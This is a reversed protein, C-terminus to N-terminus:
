WKKMVIAIWDEHHKRDILRFGNKEFAERVIKEKEKLIGAAIIRGGPTLVRPLDTLLSLHLEAILNAVILEAKQTVTKLGDGQEVQIQETLRNIAIHKQTEAIAQPDLDIAFIQKAGLKAAAISLIGSGCGVDIVRDGSKLHKELFQLCQVTTPHHGTGFALGPDLEIVLKHELLASEVKQGMPKVLLRDSVAIPHLHQKWPELWDEKTLRKTTVTKPGPDLGASALTDLYAKIKQIMTELEEQLAVYGKIRAGKKPVNEPSLAYIEGYRSPWERKWITSDEIAVGELGCELMFNSVAEVAEESTHVCIEMWDM